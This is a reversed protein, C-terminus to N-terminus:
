VRKSWIVSFSIKEESAGGGFGVKDLQPLFILETQFPGFTDLHAWFLGLNYFFDINVMESGKPGRQVGESWKPVKVLRGHKAM